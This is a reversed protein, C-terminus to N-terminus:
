ATELVSSQTFALVWGGAGLVPLPPVALEQLVSAGRVREVGRGPCAAQCEPCEALVPQSPPHFSSSQSVLAVEWQQGMQM